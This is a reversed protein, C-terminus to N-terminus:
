NPVMGPRHTQLGERGALPFSFEAELVFGSIGSRDAAPLPHHGLREGMKLHRPKTSRLSEQLNVDIDLGTDSPMDSGASLAVYPGPTTQAIATATAASLSLM